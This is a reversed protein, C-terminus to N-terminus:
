FAGVAAIGAQERGAYPALSVSPISASQYHLLRPILYGIGFGIAGGVMADTAYHVDVSVRSLAELHAFTLGVACALTDPWGGGYLPLHLHHACVLGAGTFAMLTHGSTFSANQQDPNDCDVDYEPNAACERVFPRERGSLRALGISASAAISLSQLNMVTMQWSTDASRAGAVLLTDVLIPYLMLGYFIIDSSVTVAGRVDASEIRLADRVGEDFGNQWRGSKRPEIQLLALAGVGFLATAAHEWLTVRPWEDRWRLRSQAQGDNACPSCVLDGSLMLSAPGGPPLKIGASPDTKPVALPSGEPQYNADAFAPAAIFTIAAGLAM